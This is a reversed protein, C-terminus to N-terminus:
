KTTGHGVIWREVLATRPPSELKELSVWDGEDANALHRKVVAGSLRLEAAIRRASLLLGFL